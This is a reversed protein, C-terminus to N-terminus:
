RSIKIKPYAAQTETQPSHIIYDVIEGILKLAEENTFDIKGRCAYVKDLITDRDIKIYPM